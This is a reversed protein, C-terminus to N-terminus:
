GTETGIGQLSFLPRKKEKDLGLFFVTDINNM